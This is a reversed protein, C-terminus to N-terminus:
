SSIEEEAEVTASGILYDHDILRDESTANNYYSFLFSCFIALTFFFLGTHLFVNPITDSSEDQHLFNVSLYFDGDDDSVESVFGL